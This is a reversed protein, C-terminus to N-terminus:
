IRRKAVSGMTDDCDAGPPQFYPTRSIHLLLLSATTDNQRHSGTSYHEGRGSDDGKTSKYNEVTSEALSLWWHRLLRVSQLSSCANGWRCSTIPLFILINAKSSFHSMRLYKSPDNRAIRKTQRSVQPTAENRIRQKTRQNQYRFTAPEYLSAL